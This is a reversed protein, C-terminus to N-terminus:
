DQELTGNVGPEGDLRNWLAKLVEAAIAIKSADLDAALDDVWPRQVKAAAAMVAKGSATLKVLKARRHRPNDEFALLGQEALENVIRQVGQRALGMDGALHAVPQPASSMAVAGLVQWRASTLGLPSVLQDGAAILRGNARFIDLFLGSLARSTAHTADSKM